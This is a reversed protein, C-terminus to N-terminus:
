HIYKINMKAIKQRRMEAIDYKQFLGSKGDHSDLTWTHIDQNKIPGIGFSKSLGGDAKAASTKQSVIPRTM